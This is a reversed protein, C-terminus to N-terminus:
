KNKLLRDIEAAILAGAKALEKIRNDPSPKWYNAVWPFGNPVRREGTYLRLPAPTAYAVAAMALENTSYQEDNEISYGKENIQRLREAQIISISKPINHM